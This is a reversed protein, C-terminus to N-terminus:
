QFVFHWSVYNFEQPDNLDIWKVTCCIWVMDSLLNGEWQGDKAPATTFQEGFSEVMKWKKIVQIVIIHITGYRNEMHLRRNQLKFSSHFARSSHMWIVHCQHHCVTSLSILPIGYGVKPDKNRGFTQYTEGTVIIKLSVFLKLNKPDRSCKQEHLVTSSSNARAWLFPPARWHKKIHILLEEHSKDPIGLQARLHAYNHLM